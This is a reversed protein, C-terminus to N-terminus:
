FRIILNFLFGGKNSIGVEALYENKFIRVLPTFRSRTGIARSITLRCCLGPTFMTTIGWTPPSEWERKRDSSSATDEAYYVRNEYSTFYRRNEWDLAIDTFAAPQAKGDPLGLDDYAVGLGGKLYFNAQSAPANHRKVLYNLQVGHFQWDENRWYETRYGISYKATPSYHVHLSHANKDNKQMVTWGGPYSVPRALSQSSYGLLVVCCLAFVASKM